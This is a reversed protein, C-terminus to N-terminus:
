MTSFPLIENTKIASYFLGSTKWLTIRPGGAGAAGPFKNSNRIGPGWDLGVSDSIRCLLAPSIQFWFHQSGTLQM